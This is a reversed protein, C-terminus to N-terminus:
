RKKLYEWEIQTLEPNPKKHFVENLYQVYCARCIGMDQFSSYTKCKRCVIPEIM